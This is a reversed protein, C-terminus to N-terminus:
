QYYYSEDEYDIEKRMTIKNPAKISKEPLKFKGLPM